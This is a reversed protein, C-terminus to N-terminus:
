EFKCVMGDLCEKKCTWASNDNLCEAEPLDCKSNPAPCDIQLAGKACPDVHCKGDNQNGSDCVFASRSYFIKSAHAVCARYM